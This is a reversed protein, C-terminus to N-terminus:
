FKETPAHGWVGGTRPAKPAWVKEKRAGEFDWAISGVAPKKYSLFDIVLPPFFPKNLFPQLAPPTCNEYTFLTKKPPTLNQYVVGKQVGWGGLLLRVTGLYHSYEHSFIHLFSTRTTPFNM